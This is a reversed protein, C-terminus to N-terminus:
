AVLGSAWIPRRDRGGVICSISSSSSGTADEDSESELCGLRNLERVVDLGREGVALAGRLARGEGGSCTSRLALVSRLFDDRRCLPM